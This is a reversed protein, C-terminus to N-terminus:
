CNIGLEPHGIANSATKKGIRIGDIAAAMQAHFGARLRAGRSFHPLITAM